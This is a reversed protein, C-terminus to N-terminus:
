RHGIEIKEREFGSLAAASESIVDVEKTAAPPITASHYNVPKMVVISAEGSHDIDIAAEEQVEGDMRMLDEFNLQEQYENRSVRVVNSSSPKAEFDHLPREAEEEILSKAPKKQPPHLLGKLHMAELIQKLTRHEQISNKIRLQHLRQDLDGSTVDQPRKKFVNPMGEMQHHKPSMPQRPLPSGPEVQRGFIGYGQLQHNRSQTDPAPPPSRSRSQTRSKMKSKRKPRTEQVTKQRLQSDQHLRAAVQKMQQAVESLHLQSKGRESPPSSVEAPPGSSLLRQLSKGEPPPIDKEPLEALGMLRAVVSPGRRKFEGSTSSSDMSSTRLQVQADVSSARSSHLSSARLNHERGDVSRRPTSSQYQRSDISVRSVNSTRPPDRGDVSNRTSLMESSRQSDKLDIARMMERFDNSGTVNEDPAMSSKYGERLAATQSSSERVQMNLRALDRIDVLNRPSVTNRSASSRPPLDRSYGSSSEMVKHKPVGSYHLKVSEKNSFVSSKSGRRRHEGRSENRGHDESYVWDAHSDNLHEGSVSRTDTASEYKSGDRVSSRSRDRRRDDTYIRHGDDNGVSYRRHADSFRRTDDRVSSRHHQQSFVQRDEESSENNRWSDLSPDHRRHGDRSNRHGGREDGSSQYRRAEYGSPQPRSSAKSASSTQHRYQDEGASQYRQHENLEHRYGAHYISSHRRNTPIHRHAMMEDGSSHLGQAEYAVHRRGEKYHKHGREDPHHHRRRPYPRQPAVVRDDGSSVERLQGDFNADGASQYRQDVPWHSRNSEQDHSSVRQPHFRYAAGREDGSSMNSRRDMEDGSSMYRSAIQSSSQNRHWSLLNLEKGEFPFQPRHHDKEDFSETASSYRLAQHYGDKEDGSSQYRRQHHGDRRYKGGEHEEDGSSHYRQLHDRRAVVSPAHHRRALERADFPSKSAAERMQFIARSIDRADDLHASVEKVNEVQKRSKSASRPPLKHYDRTRNDVSSRSPVTAPKPTAADSSYHEPTKFSDKPERHPSSSKYASLGPKQSDLSARASHPKQVTGTQAEQSSTLTKVVVDSADVSSSRRSDRSTESSRRDSSDPVVKRPIGDEEVQTLLLM